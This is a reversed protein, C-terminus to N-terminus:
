DFDDVDMDFSDLIVMWNQIFGESDIDMIIYDGYGTGGPSLIQPVYGDIRRVEVTDNFLTYIGDDAVKYHVAATKGSEWNIIQGTKLEILPEWRDGNRCPILSGTEDEVGDVIGDEWYWVGASVQLHTVVKDEITIVKVTYM